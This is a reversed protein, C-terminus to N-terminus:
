SVLDPEFSSIRVGFIRVMLGVHFTATSDKM